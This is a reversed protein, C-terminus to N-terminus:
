TAWAPGPVQPSLHCEWATDQTDLVVPQCWWDQLMKNGGTGGGGGDDCETLNMKKM